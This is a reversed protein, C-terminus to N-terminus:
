PTENLGRRLIGAGLIWVLLLFIVIRIILSLATLSFCEIAPIISAGMTDGFFRPDDFEAVANKSAQAASEIHDLINWLEYHKMKSEQEAHLSGLAFIHGLVLDAQEEKASARYDDLEYELNEIAYELADKSAQIQDDKQQQM